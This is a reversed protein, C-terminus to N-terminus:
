KIRKGLLWLFYYDSNRTRKQDEIYKLLTSTFMMGGGGYGILEAILDINEVNIAVLYTLVSAISAKAASAAAQRKIEKIDETILETERKIQSGIKLANLKDYGNDVKGALELFKNHFFGRFKVLHKYKDISIKCVDEYTIAEIYPLEIESIVKILDSKLKGRGIPKIYKNDQCIGDFYSIDEKLRSNAYPDDEYFVAEEYVVSPLYSLDGLEILDKSKRVWNGLIKIDPCNTLTTRATRSQSNENGYIYKYDISNNYSGGHALLTSNSLLLTKKSVDSLSSGDLLLSINNLSNKKFSPNDKCKNFYRDNLEHLSKIFMIGLEKDTLKDLTTKQFFDKALMSYYEKFTLDQNFIRNRVEEEAKVWSDFKSLSKNREKILYAEKEIDKKLKSSSDPVYKIM